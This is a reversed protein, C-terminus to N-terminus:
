RSKRDRNKATQRVRVPAPAVGCFGLWEVDCTDGIRLNVIRSGPIPTRVIPAAPEGPYEAISSRARAPLPPLFSFFERRRLRM